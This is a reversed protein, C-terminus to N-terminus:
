YRRTSTAQDIKVSELIHELLRYAETDSSASSLVTSFYFVSRGDLEVITSGPYDSRQAPIGGIIPQSYRNPRTDEIIQPGGGDPYVDLESGVSDRLIVSPIVDYFIPDRGSSTTLSWNAPYEFSLYETKIRRWPPAPPPTSPVRSSTTGATLHQSQSPHLSAPAPPRLLFVLFVVILAVPIAVILFIPRSVLFYSLM